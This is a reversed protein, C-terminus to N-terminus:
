KIAEKKLENKLRLAAREVGINWHEMNNETYLIKRSSNVFVGIGDKNLLHKFNLYNGGQEGVGALLIPMDDPIEKRIQSMDCSTNSSLVPVINGNSNWHNVILELIHMWLLKGNKLEVNQIMEALPNSTQTLVVILKDKFEALPVIADDGMYPNAVVGDAELNGFINEIYASMTNGIDGIKCDLIVPIGPHKKHVYAILEKLVDHGGHLKDFFAKQAKFACSHNSTLSIVGTLFEYVKEEDSIRLKSIEYPIKRVDPDLGVCVFTHKSKMGNFLQNKANM